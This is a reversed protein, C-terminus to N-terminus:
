KHPISRPKKKPYATWVIFGTYNYIGPDKKKSLLGHLDQNTWKQINAEMMLRAAVERMRKGKLTTQEMIQAVLDERQNRVQLKPEQFLTKEQLMEKIHM